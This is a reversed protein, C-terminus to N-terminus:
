FSAFAEPEEALRLLFASELVADSPIAANYRDDAELELHEAAAGLIGDAIQSRVDEIIQAVLGFGLWIFASETATLSEATRREVADLVGGSM